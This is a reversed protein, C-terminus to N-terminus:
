KVNTTNLKKGKKTTYMKMTYGFALGSLTWVIVGKALNIWTMSTGELFPWILHMFVFMFLGWKLGSLFWNNKDFPNPIKEFDLNEFRQAQKSLWNEKLSKRFWGWIPFTLALILLSFLNYVCPIIKGCSKCYLGFWNKFATGNQTSWTRQDHLANCHPCPVFSREIFPLDSTKDVLSVKPVKQGFVLENIALGPNIIWHLVLPNKWTYVKYKDTNYNM